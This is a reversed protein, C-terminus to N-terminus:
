GRKKFTWTIYINSVLEAKSNKGVATMTITQSTGSAMAEKVTAIVENGQQCSFTITSDAKKLFEAKVEAVLISASPQGQLALTALVGTALEGAACQAAFYISNFPNKTSWRYPLTVASSTATLQTVKIGFFWAGPLKTFMFLFQKWPTMLDTIYQKVKPHETSWSMLSTIKTFFKHRISFIL